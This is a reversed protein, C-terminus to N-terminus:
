LDPSSDGSDPSNDPSSDPTSSDPAGWDSTAGGGDSDGGGFGGFVPPDDVAPVYETPPEITNIVVTENVIAAAPERYPMSGGLASGIVLGEDFGANGEVVTIGPNYYVYQGSYPEVIVPAPPSRPRRIFYIVIAVIVLVMGGLLIVDIDTM